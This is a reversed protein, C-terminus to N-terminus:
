SKKQLKEWTTEMFRDTLKEIYYSGSAPDIVSDFYSEERLLNSVNRAIRESFASIDEIGQNHPLVGLSNCGGIIASMAETTNSLMNQYPDEQAMEDTRIKSQAVIYVSEASYNEVYRQAIETLLFRLARLKAIEEFYNVRCLLNFTLSNLVTNIDLEQATAKELITVTQWCLETLEDTISIEEVSSLMVPRFQPLVNTKAILELILDMSVASGNIELNGTVKELDISKKALFQLYNELFGLTNKTPVEWSVTCFALEIKQMVTEFDIKQPDDLVFVVEESDQELAFLATQNAMKEGGVSVAIKQRSKWHRYPMEEAPAESKGALYNQLYDLNETDTQDYLPELMIDEATNWVLKEDFDAGRLDKIVKTKWEAKTPKPFESFLNNSNM